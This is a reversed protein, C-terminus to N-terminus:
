KTPSKKLLPMRLIVAGKANVSAKREILLQAVECSNLSAAWMLATMEQEQFLKILTIEFSIKSRDLFNIKKVVEDTSDPSAKAGLLRKKYPLHKSM